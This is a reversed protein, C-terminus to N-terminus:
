PILQWTFYGPPAPYGNIVVSIGCSPWPNMVVLNVTEFYGNNTGTNGMFLANVDVAFSANQIIIAPSIGHGTFESGSVYLNGGSQHIGAGFNSTNMTFVTGSVHTQSADGMHLYVAGGSTGSENSYFYSDTITVINANYVSEEHIAGGRQSAANDVFRCDNVELHYESYIAGGNVATNNTFWCNNLVTNGGTHIAGGEAAPGGWPNAVGNFVLNNITYVQSHLDNIVLYSWGGPAYMFRQITNAPLGDGDTQGHFTMNVTLVLPLQSQLNITGPVQFYIDAVLSVDGNAQTIADRLSGPGSDALTTVYYASPVDRSELPECRLPTRRAPGRPRPTRFLRALRGLVPLAM